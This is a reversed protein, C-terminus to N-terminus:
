VSSPQPGSLRAAIEATIGVAAIQGVNGNPNTDSIPQPAHMSGPVAEWGATQDASYPPAICEAPRPQPLYLTTM